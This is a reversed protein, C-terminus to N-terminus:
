YCDARTVKDENGFEWIKSFGLISASNVGGGKPYVSCRLFLNALKGDRAPIDSGFEGQAPIIIVSNNRDLRLKTLSM